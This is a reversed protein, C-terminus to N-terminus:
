NVRFRWIALGGFVVAFLALAIMEPRVNGPSAGFLMLNNFASNAWAHPTVKALNQLWRPMVFLPWWSGGLAAFSLSTFVAVSAASKRSRAISALFAGIGASALTLLMSVLVVTAPHHGMRIHFLFIGTLWFVATQVLGRAFSGAMKGTVISYRTASGAMLRELTSNEKEAVLAEAALALSFFVFMTLYGPILFDAPRVPEIKGVQEYALDVGVGASAVGAAGGAPGATVGGAAVGGVGIGRTAGGSLDGIARFMVRYSAIEGAVSQAISLLAARTTGAEPNAYVALRAPRGSMVAETFDAPFFLYGGIKEKALAERAEEARVSRIDLGGGSVSGQGQTAGGGAASTMAEIIQRSLSGDAEATAVYVTLPKDEGGLSGGMSLSSFMLVFAFPFILALFLAGRDAVFIKLDKAALLGVQRLFVWAGGSRGRAGSTTRNRM